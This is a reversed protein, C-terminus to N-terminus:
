GLSGLNKEMGFKRGCALRVSLACRSMSAGGGAILSSSGPQIRDIGHYVLRAPGGIVVVDGSGLPITCTPDRRRCGGVRFIATDGLSISLVPWSFDAEDKDQHLGMKAHTDYFNILCCEPDMKESVLRHWVSLISKPILPSSRRESSM